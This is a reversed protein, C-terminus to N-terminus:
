IRLVKRRPRDVRSGRYRTETDRRHVSDCRRVIASLSCSTPDPDRTHRAVQLEVHLYTFM